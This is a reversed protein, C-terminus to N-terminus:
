PLPLGIGEAVISISEELETPREALIRRSLRRVQEQMAPDTIYEAPSKGDIRALMLGGHLLLTRPMLTAAPEIAM